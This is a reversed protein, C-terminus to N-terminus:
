CVLLSDRMEGLSLEVSGLRAQVALLILGPARNVLPIGAGRFGRACSWRQRDLSAQPGDGARGSGPGKSFNAPTSTSDDM